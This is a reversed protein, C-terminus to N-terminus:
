DEYVFVSRGLRNFLKAIMNGAQKIGDGAAGGILISLDNM